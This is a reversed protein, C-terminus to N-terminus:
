SLSNKEVNKVPVVMGEDALEAHDFHERAEDLFPQMERYRASYHGLLLKKANAEKAVQAAQKATSHFTFQAREIDAELFTSEHYLLNVGQIFDATRKQYATDSCFAYSTPPEPRYTLESNSIVTGDKLTYDSGAKIQRIRAVPIDYKTICEPKINRSKPKEAFLFGCCPVRHSLPFSFVQLKKNEFILSKEEPNLINWNIEFRLRSHSIKLQHEVAERLGEQSYVNLPRNRGLLHLTSILGPLGLCHDGHNHSIFIHNIKAFRIKFRRLQLQTGEGCDILFLHSDHELLQSTPGHRLTPTASGCGLITVEFKMM